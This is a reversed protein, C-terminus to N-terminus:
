CVNPGILKIFPSRVKILTHFTFQLPVVPNVVGVNYFFVNSWPKRLLLSLFM